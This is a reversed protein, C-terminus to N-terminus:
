AINQGANNRDVELWIDREKLIERVGFTGYVFLGFHFGLTIFLTFSFNNFLQSPNGYYSTRRLYDYYSLSSLCLPITEVLVLVFADHTKKTVKDQMAQLTLVGSYIVIGGTILDFTTRNEFM